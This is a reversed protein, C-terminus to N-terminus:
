WENARRTAMLVTSNRATTSRTPEAISRKKPMESGITCTEPPRTIAEM